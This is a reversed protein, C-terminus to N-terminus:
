GSNVLHAPRVSVDHILEQAQAPTGFLSALTAGLVLVPIRAGRVSGLPREGRVLGQM